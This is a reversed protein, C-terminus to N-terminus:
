AFLCISRRCTAVLEDTVVDVERTVEMVDEDLCVDVIEVGVVDVGESEVVVVDSVVEEGGVVSVEGEEEDEDESDLVDHVVEEMLDTLVNVVLMTVVMLPTAVVTAEVPVEVVSIGVMTGPRCDLAPPEPSLVVFLFMTMPTTTPIPPAAIRARM